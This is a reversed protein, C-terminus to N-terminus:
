FKHKPLSNIHRYPFHISDSCKAQIVIVCLIRITIILVLFKIQFPYFIRIESGKIRIESGKIRIESGKMICHWIIGKGLCARTKVHRCHLDKSFVPPFLIFQEHRAIEGKEVTNEVCKSFKRGNEDLKFYNDAFEKLKSPDSNTTQSLTLCGQPLIRQFSNHTFFFIKTVLM